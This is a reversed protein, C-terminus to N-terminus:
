SSEPTKLKAPVMEAKPPRRAKARRLFALLSPGLIVQVLLSTPRWPNTISGLHICVLGPAFYFRHIHHKWLFYILTVAQFLLEM